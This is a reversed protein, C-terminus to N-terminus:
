KIKRLLELQSGSSMKSIAELLEEKTLEELKSLDIAEGMTYSAMQSLDKKHEMYSKMTTVPSKHNGQLQAAMIDGTADYVFNIGCKKLSHFRINRRPDLGMQDSLQKIHKGILHPYFNFYREGDYISNLRNYLDDSIPKIHKEGKDITEVVWIKNGHQERQIINDSTLTLLANLRMCTKVGLEFLISLREGNKTEKALRFMETAEEWTLVGYGNHHEKLKKVVNFISSRINSNGAELYCFLTKVTNIRRNITTNSKGEDHMLARYEIIDDITTNEFDFNTVYEVEKNFVTLCFDKVDVKYNRYTNISNAKKDNLFKEIKSYVYDKNIETVNAIATANM